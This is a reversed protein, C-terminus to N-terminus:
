RVGDQIQYFTHLVVEAPANLRYPLKCGGAGNNTYGQLQGRRWAGSIMSRSFDGGGALAFGGPLSIQGGHTHGCLMLNVGAALAKRHIGPSHALLVIPEGPVRGALARSLDDTRFLRPDDVGALCLGGTEPGLRVSENMLVRVGCTELVEAVRLLDHNGLVPYVPQPLFSVLKRLLAEDVKEEEFVLDFFDGTVATADCTIGEVAARLRAIVAPDFDSHLDSLHLLRFGDMASPLGPLQWTREVRRITLFNREARRRLGSARIFRDLLRVQIRLDAMREGCRFRPAMRERLIKETALRTRVAEPEMRATLDDFWPTAPIAVEAIERPTPTVLLV